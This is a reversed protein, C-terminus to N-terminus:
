PLGGGTKSKMEVSRNVIDQMAELLQTQNLAITINVNEAKFSTGIVEIANLTFLYSIIVGAGVGILFVTSILLWFYVDSRDVL